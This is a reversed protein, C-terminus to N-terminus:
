TLPKSLINYKFTLSTNEDGEEKVNGLTYRIANLEDYRLEKTFVCVWGLSNM